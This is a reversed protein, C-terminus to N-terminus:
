INIYNYYQPTWPLLVLQAYKLHIFMNNVTSLVIILTFDSSHEVNMEGALGDEYMFRCTLKKLQNFSGINVYACMLANFDPSRTNFALFNTNPPPRHPHIPWLFMSWGLLGINTDQTFGFSFM